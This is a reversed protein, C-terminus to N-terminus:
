LLQRRETFIASKGSNESVKPINNNNYTSFINSQLSVSQSISCLLTSYFCVWFFSFYVSKNEFLAVCFAAARMNLKQGSNKFLDHPPSPKTNGLCRDTVVTLSGHSPLHNCVDSFIYILLCIKPAIDYITDYYQSVVYHM